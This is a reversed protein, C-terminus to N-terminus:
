QLYLGCSFIFAEGKMLVWYLLYSTCFKPVTWFYDAKSNIKLNIIAPVQWSHLGLLHYEWLNQIPITYRGLLSIEVALHSIHVTLGTTYLALWIKRDWFHSPTLCPEDCEETYPMVPAISPCLQWGWRLEGGGAKPSFCHALYQWKLQPVALCSSLTHPYKHWCTLTLVDHQMQHYIFYM